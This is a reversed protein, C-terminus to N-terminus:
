YACNGRDGQKICNDYFNGDECKKICEARDKVKGGKGIIGKGTASDCFAGCPDALSVTDRDGQKICNDYFNGDKGTASDCFAGCPDALSVADIEDYEERTICMQQFTSLSALISGGVWASNEIDPPTKVKINKILPALKTIESQMRETLGPTRSTGGCLIINGYLDKRFDGVCKLISDNLTVHLGPYFDM